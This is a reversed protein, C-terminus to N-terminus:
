PFFDLMFVFVCLCEFLGLVLAGLISSTGVLTEIAKLMVIAGM